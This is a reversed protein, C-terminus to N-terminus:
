MHRQVVSIVLRMKKSGEKVPFHILFAVSMLAAVVCAKHLHVGMDSLAAGRPFVGAVPLNM